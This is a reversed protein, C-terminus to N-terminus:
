SVTPEEFLTDIYRDYHERGGYWEPYVWRVMSRLIDRLRRTDAEFDESSITTNRSLSGLETIVYNVVYSTVRIGDGETTINELCEGLDGTRIGEAIATFPVAETGTLGKARFRLKLFDRTDTLMAGYLMLSQLPKRLDRFAPGFAGKTSLSHLAIAATLLAMYPADGYLDILSRGRKIGADPTLMAMMKKGPVTVGTWIRRPSTDLGETRM